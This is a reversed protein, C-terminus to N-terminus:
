VQVGLFQIMEEFDGGLPVNVVLQSFRQSAGNKSVSNSSKGGIRLDARSQHKSFLSNCMVGFKHFPSKSHNVVTSCIEFIM